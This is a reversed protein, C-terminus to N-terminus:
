KAEKKIYVRLVYKDIKDIEPVGMKCVFKDIQSYRIKLSIMDRYNLQHKEIEKIHQSRSVVDYIDYEEDLYGSQYLENITKGIVNPSNIRVSLDKAEYESVNEGYYDNDYIQYKLMEYKGLAVEDDFYKIIDQQYLKSNKMNAHGKFVDWPPNLIIVIRPQTIKIEQLEKKINKTSIVDFWQVL